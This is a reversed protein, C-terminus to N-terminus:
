KKLLYYYKDENQIYQLKHRPIALCQAKQGSRLVCEKKYKELGYDVVKTNYITIKGLLFGWLIFGAVLGAFGTIMITQTVNWRAGKKIKEITERIEKEKEDEFLVFTDNFSKEVEKLKQKAYKDLEDIRDMAAKIEKDKAEIANRAYDTFTNVMGMFMLELNRIVGRMDNDFQSLTDSLTNNQQQLEDKVNNLSQTTNEMAKILEVATSKEDIAIDKVVEVQERLEDIKQVITSAKGDINDNYVEIQTKLQELYAIVDELSKLNIGSM